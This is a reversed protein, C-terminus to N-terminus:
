VRKHCHPWESSSLSADVGNMDRSAFNFFTAKSQNRLVDRSKNGLAPWSRFSGIEAGMLLRIVSKGGSLEREDAGREKKNKADRQM